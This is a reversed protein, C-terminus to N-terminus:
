NRSDRRTQSRKGRASVHGRTRTTLGSAQIRAEKAATTADLQKKGKLPMAPIEPPVAAPPKKTASKKKVSPAKTKAAAAKSPKKAGTSAKTM